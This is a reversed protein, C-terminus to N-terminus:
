RGDNNEESYNEINRKGKKMKSVKEAHFSM